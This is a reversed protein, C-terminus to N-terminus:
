TISPACKQTAFRIALEMSFCTMIVDKLIYEVSSTTKASAM